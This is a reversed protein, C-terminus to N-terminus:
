AGLSNFPFPADTIFRVPNNIYFIRLFSSGALVLLHIRRPQLISLWYAFILLVKIYLAYAALFHRSWLDHWTQLCVGPSEAVPSASATSPFRLSLVQWPELTLALGVKSVWWSPREWHFFFCDHYSAQRTQTLGLTRDRANCYILLDRVFNCNYLLIHLYVYLQKNFSHTWPSALCNPPLLVQCVHRMVWIQVRTSSLVLEQFNVGSKWVRVTAGTCGWVYM